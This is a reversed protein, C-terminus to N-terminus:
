STPTEMMEMSTSLTLFDNSHIKTMIKLSPHLHISPNFLHNLHEQFTKKSLSCNSKISNINCRKKQEKRNMLLILILHIDEKKSDRQENTKCEYSTETVQQVSKNRGVFEFM